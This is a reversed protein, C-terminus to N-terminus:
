QLNAKVARRIEDARITVGGPSGPCETAVRDRHLCILPLNRNGFDATPTPVPTVPDLFGYKRCLMTCLAVASNFQQQSINQNTFMGDFAIGIGDNIVDHAGKKNEKRAEFVRGSPMIIFHYGIDDWGNGNVHGNYIQRMRDAETAITANIGPSNALYTHHLTIRKPNVMDNITNPTSSNTWINRPQIQLIPPSTVQITTENKDSNNITLIEIIRTGTQNLKIMSSWLGNQVMPRALEYQRDARLILQTGNAFRDAVGSVNFFQSAQVTAPINTFRLRPLNNVQIFTEAKATGSLNTIEILRNGTQNFRINAQWLGNQVVPRNLEFQRDARLILTTGNPYSATGKITASQNIFMNTPVQTFKLPSIISTVKNEDSVNDKKTVNLVILTIIIAVVSLGFIILSAIKKNM